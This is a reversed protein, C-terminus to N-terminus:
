LGGHGEHICGYANVEKCKQIYIKASQQMFHGPQEAARVELTCCQRKVTTRGVKEVSQGAGWLM